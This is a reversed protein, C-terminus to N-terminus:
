HAKLDSLDDKEDDDLLGSAECVYMSNMAIIKLKFFFKGETVSCFYFTAKNKLM